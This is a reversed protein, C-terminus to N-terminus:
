KNEAPEGFADTLQPMDNLLYPDLMVAKIFKDAQKSYASVNRKGEIATGEVKRRILFYKFEKSYEESVADFAKDFVTDNLSYAKGDYQPLELSDDVFVGGAVEDLESLAEQDVIYVISSASAFQGMLRSSKARGTDLLREEDPIACDMVLVNVKGDGNTDEAYQEAVTAVNEIMASSVYHKFYLVITMDYETRTSCQTIGVAMIVAVILIMVLPFKGYYWLDSLTLKKKVADGEVTPTFGGPDKEFELAKKKLEILERQQRQQEAVIDLRDKKDSM